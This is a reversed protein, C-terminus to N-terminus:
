LWLAVQEQLFTRTLNHVIYRRETLDGKSDVLNLAVLHDLADRVHDSALETLDALYALSGGHDAVLPMALFVQRTLEDLHDWARRYIFTFLKEAKQGRATTLDDLIVHLPHVHTQGVVLRLALPNGGVMEVIRRLSDDDAKELHPLNSLSAEYRILRLADAESLQPLRFHYVGPEHHFSQRSTLLFKSPNALDRLTPLLTELDLLTELNDIVILHAEQKLRARLTTLADQPSFAAPRSHDSMLQALLKEILDDVTLAPLEVLMVGGGPNFIQQRASIWGFDAFAQQRIIQRSLADALSTKGLGGLGEILIIWPPEPSTLTRALMDLHAEVGILEVYAPPELRKELRTNYEVGLQSEKIRLISALQEIAEKQLRFTTSEGINFQHAVARPDKGALFRERLVEAGAAHTIALTKLAELLIDQTAQRANAAGNLRAQRFIQLYGLPSTATSLEYWAKLAARIDQQLRTVPIESEM